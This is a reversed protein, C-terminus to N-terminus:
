RMGPATLLARPGLRRRLRSWRSTARAVLRRLAESHRWAAEAAAADPAEVAFGAQNVADALRRLHGAAAEGITQEGFDAVDHASLAGVPPLGVHRLQDLAEQWAGVVKGAPTRRLRRRRRRWVPLVAALVVYAALLLGAAPTALAWWPVPPAVGPGGSGASRRPASPTSQPLSQTAAAIRQDMAQRAQSEGAPVSQSGNASSGTQSPTPYFPVWGLGQFDVEPWVLVDGADVQWSGGEDHGPRFGVVVRSPLGLTRAMLAYTTAFQESTGHHSTILFFELSRYSHGPPATVDYVENARMFDALYLAQQYPSTAGSTAVQAFRRFEVPQPVEAGAGSDPLALAARAEADEAPRANQLQSQSYEPVASVVQYRSGPRSPSAAVLLGSATDVDVSTGSIFTPRVAAPLWTSSLGQITFAQTVAQDGAAKTGQEPPVRGGTPVFRAVPSWTSGDFQELTVLRWNQGSSAKVTFMQTDPSQLWAAVEDLPNVSDRPEPPPPAVYRRPDFPQRGQLFPLNPGLGGALLALVAVAPLWAALATPRTAQPGRILALLGCLVVVLAAIPVDSAVGGVGFPLAIALVLVAPAAPAIVTKTRMGLEAGAFAAGWVLAHVLVLLDPRAAVPPITTLIEKWASRLATVAAAATAPTPLIGGSAHARFLTVCAVLLWCVATLVLSHWLPRPRGAQLAVSLLVSLVAASAVVPVLSQWAFASQFAMGAAAALAAAVAASAFRQRTSM